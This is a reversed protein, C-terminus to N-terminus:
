EIERKKKPVGKFYTACVPCNLGIGLTRSRLGAWAPIGPVRHEVTFQNGCEPCSVTDGDFYVFPMGETKLTDLYVALVEDSKTTKASM